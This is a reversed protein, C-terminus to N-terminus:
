PKAYFRESTAGSVVLVIQKAALITTMGATYAHTPVPRASDWYVRNSELSESTLEIFRTPSDISSMPENFGLHGNLGLGLIALDIGGLSTVERDYVEVPDTLTTDFRITREPEIGLPKLFERNMWDFLLPTTAPNEAVYEDLQVATIRSVDIRQEAVVVALQRYCEIPTNGTAVLVSLDPKDQFARAILSAATHSMFAHSTDVIINM